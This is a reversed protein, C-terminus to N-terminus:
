IKKIGLPASPHGLENKNRGLKILFMVVGNLKTEELLGLQPTSTKSSGTHGGGAQAQTEKFDLVILEETM